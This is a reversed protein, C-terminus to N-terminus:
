ALVERIVAETDSLDRLVGHAGAAALAHEDYPGTAVGVARAGGELAAAVDLPTDGVLVVDASELRMGHREEARRRAIAVLEGRRRHDSGYAGAGFDLYRALGFASLKILANREVNGTLLSQVVGPEDQLRGLAADAGPLARGYTRLDDIRAAMSEVLAEEFHDLLEQASDVGAAELMDLAIELDTRGAFPVMERPPGGTVREFAEFFADRGLKASDVLTGDVDWLVLRPRDAATM